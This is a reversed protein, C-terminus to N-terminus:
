IKAFIDRLIQEIAPAALTQEESLEGPPDLREIYWTANGQQDCLYVRKPFQKLREAVGSSVTLREM